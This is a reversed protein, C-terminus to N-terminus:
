EYDEGRAMKTAKYIDVMIKLRRDLYVKSDETLYQKAFNYFEIYNLLIKEKKEFKEEFNRIIKQVDKTNGIISNEVLRHMRELMFRKGENDLHKFMAIMHKMENPDQLQKTDRLNIVKYYNAETPRKFEQPKLGGLWDALNEIFFNSFVGDYFTALYGLYWGLGVTTYFDKESLKEAGHYFERLEGYNSKVLPKGEVLALIRRGAPIIEPLTRALVDGFTKDGRKVSGVERALNIGLQVVPSPLNLDYTMASPSILGAESVSSVMKLIDLGKALINWGVSDGILEGGALYKAVERGSAEFIYYKSKPNLVEIGMMDALRSGVAYGLSKEDLVDPVNIGLLLGIANAVHKAMTYSLEFPAFYPVAQTGVSLALMSSIAMGKGLARLDGRSIDGIFKQSAQLGLALPSFIFKYWSIFAERTNMDKLFTIGLTRPDGGIIIRELDDVLLEKNHKYFNYLDDAITKVDDQNKSFKTLFRALDDIVSRFGVEDQISSRISARILGEVTPTIPNLAHYKYLGHRLGAQKYAIRVEELFNKFTAGSFLKLSPFLTSALAMYQGFNAVTIPTNFMTYASGLFLNFSKLMDLMENGTKGEYAKIFDLVLKQLDTRQEPSSKEIFEKLIRFGKAGSMNAYVRSWMKSSAYDVLSDYDKFLIAFGKGERHMEPAQKFAIEELFNAINTLKAEVRDAIKLSSNLKNIDRKTLTDDDLVDKIKVELKNEFMDQLNRLATATNKLKHPFISNNYYVTFKGHILNAEADELISKLVSNVYERSNAINHYPINIYEDYLVAIRRNGVMKRINEIEADDFVQKLEPLLEDLTQGKSTAVVMPTGHLTIFNDYSPHYAPKLIMYNPKNEKANRWTLVLGHGEDLEKFIPQIIEDVKSETIKFTHVVVNDDLRRVHIIDAGEELARSMVHNLSSIRQLTLFNYIERDQKSLDLLIKEVENANIKISGDERIYRNLAQKVEPKNYIYKAVANVESALLTDHLYATTLRYLASTSKSGAHKYFTQIINESFNVGEAVSKNVLSLTSKVTEIDQQIQLKTTTLHTLDSLTEAIFQDTPKDLILKASAEKTLRPAQKLSRTIDFAIALNFPNFFATLPNRDQMGAIGMEAFITGTLPATTIVDLFLRKMPTLFPRAFISSIGLGLATLNLIISGQEILNVYKKAKEIAEYKLQGNEQQALYNKLNQNFNPDLQEALASLYVVKNYDRKRLAFDIQKSIFNAVDQLATPDKREKLEQVFDIAYESYGLNVLQKTKKALEKPTDYDSPAYAFAKFGFTKQTFNNVQKASPVIRGTITHAFDFLNSISKEVQVGVQKVFKEFSM